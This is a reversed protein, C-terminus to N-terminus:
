GSRRDIRGSKGAAMTKPFVAQAIKTWLRVAAIVRNGNGDGAEQGVARM